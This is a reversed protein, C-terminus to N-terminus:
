RPSSISLRRSLPSLFTPRGGGERLRRGYGRTDIDDASCSQHPVITWIAAARALPTDKGLALHTRTEDFLAISTSFLKKKNATPHGDEGAVVLAPHIGPDRGEDVVSTPPSASGKEPESRRVVQMLGVNGQSIVESIPGTGRYGMAIKTSYRLHMAPSSSIRRTVTAMSAGASALAIRGPRWCRFHQVDRHRSEGGGFSWTAVRAAM